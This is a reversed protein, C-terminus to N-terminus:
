PSHHLFIIKMPGLCNRYTAVTIGSESKGVLDQILKEFRRTIYINWGAVRGQNGNAGGCEQHM